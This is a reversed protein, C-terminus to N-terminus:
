IFSKCCMRGNLDIKYTCSTFFNWHFNAKLQLKSYRPQVSLNIYEKNYELFPDTLLARLSKTDIRASNPVFPGFSLVRFLFVGFCAWKAKGPKKILYNSIILFQDRNSIKM